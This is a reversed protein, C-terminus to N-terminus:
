HHIKFANIPYRSHAPCQATVIAAFTFLIIEAALLDETQPLCLYPLLDNLLSLLGTVSSVGLLVFALYSHQRYYLSQALSHPSSQLCM